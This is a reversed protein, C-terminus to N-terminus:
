RTIGKILNEMREMEVQLEDLYQLAICDTIYYPKAYTLMMIRIHEFKDVNNEPYNLSM